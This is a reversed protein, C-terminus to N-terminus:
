EHNLFYRSILTKRKKTIIKNEKRCYRYSIKKEQNWVDNWRRIELYRFVESWSIAIMGKYWHKEIDKVEAFCKLTM